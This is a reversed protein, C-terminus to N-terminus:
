TVVVFQDSNKFGKLVDTNRDVAAVVENQKLLAQNRQVEATKMLKNALEAANLMPDGGGGVGGGGGIKALTSVGFGAKESSKKALEQAIVNAAVGKEEKLRRKIEEQTLDGPRPDAGERDAEQMAAKKRLASEYNVMHDAVQERGEIEAIQAGATKGGILKLKRKQMEISRNDATLVKNIANLEKQRAINILNMQHLEDSKQGALKANADISMDNLSKNNNIIDEVLKNANKLDIVRKGDEMKTLMPLQGDVRFKSDKRIGAHMRNVFDQATEDGVTKFKERFDKATNLISNFLDMESVKTKTADGENAFIFASSMPRSLFAGGERQGIVAKAKQTKELDSFLKDYLDGAIGAEKEGLNFDGGEAFRKIEVLMKEAEGYLDFANRGVLPKAEVLGQIEQHKVKFKELQNLLDLPTNDGEAFELGTGTFAMENVFENKKREEIARIEKQTTAIQKRLELAKQLAQSGAREAFLMGREHALQTEMVESQEKLTKLRKEEESNISDKGELDKIESDTRSKRAEILEVNGARNEDASVARNNLENIEKLFGLQRQVLENHKKQAVNQRVKEETTQRSLFRQLEQARKAEDFVIRQAKSFNDFGEEGVASGTVGAADMVKRVDSASAGGGSEIDKAIKLALKNADEFEKRLEKAQALQNGLDAVSEIDQARKLDGTDRRGTINGGGEADEKKDFDFSTQEKIDKSRVEALRELAATTADAQDEASLLASTLFGVAVVIAGIGTSVIAASLVKLSVTMGTIAAGAAGLVVVFKGIATVIGLLKVPAWVIFLIKGIEILRKVQIVIAQARDHFESLPDGTGAFIRVVETVTKILNQLNGTLGKDGVELVAEQVASKFLRFTGLLNNEMTEATKKAVGANQEMIDKLEHYKPLGKALNLAAVAGRAGFITIAESGTMGADRLRTIATTLGVMQPNVQDLSLGMGRLSDEAAGTVNTLRIFVQRLGTGAMAGQMGANSLVGIASAVTPIDIGAAAAAAGVYKMADGLQQVNTNANNVTSIMDDVVGTTKEAEIGFASMINSSIDAARALDITGAQALHLTAPLAKMAQEASFGAMSLFKMGQAAETATFMTTAGMERALATMRELTQGTAGSIAEVKSMEFGFNAITGITGSVARIAAAIGLFGASLASAKGMIGTFSNGLGVMKTKTGTARTGMNTLHANVQSLKKSIDATNGKINIAIETTAM